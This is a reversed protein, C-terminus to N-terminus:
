TEGSLLLDKLTMGNGPDLDTVVFFSYPQSCIAEIFRRHFSDIRSQEHELYHLAIPMERLHEAEGVEANGPVWNFVFWPIFASEVEPESEPDLPVDSWLSFEDWAEAVTSSGYYRDAYKLLAHVLEGETRRMKQWNLNAVSAADKSLCCKKYKKGSGCACPDIRGPKM